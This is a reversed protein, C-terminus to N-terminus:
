ARDGLNAQTPVWAARALWGNKYKVKRPNKRICDLYYERQLWCFSNLLKAEDAKKIAAITIPGIKGDPKTGVCRQLLKVAKPPNLNVGTDYVKIRTLRYPIDKIPIWYNAYWRETALEEIMEDGAFHKNIDEPRKSIAKYQDVLEWGPWDPNARRSIGRFTEGGDDDPDFVYGGEFGATAKLAKEFDTAM